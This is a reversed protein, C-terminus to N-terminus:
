ANKFNLNESTNSSGSVACATIMKKLHFIRGTIDYECIKFLMPVMIKHDHKSGNSGM